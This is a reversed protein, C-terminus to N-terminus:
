SAADRDEEESRTALGASVSSLKSPSTPMLLLLWANTAVEPSSNTFIVKAYEGLKSAWEVGEHDHRPVTTGREFNRLRRFSRIKPRARARFEVHDFRTTSYTVKLKKPPVM